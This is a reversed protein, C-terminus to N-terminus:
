EFVFTMGSGARGSSWPPYSVTSSTVICICVASRSGRKHTAFAGDAARGWIIKKSVGALGSVESLSLWEKNTEIQVVRPRVAPPPAVTVKVGLVELANRKEQFTAEAYRGQMVNLFNLFSLISSRYHGVLSGVDRSTAYEESIRKLREERARIDQSILIYYYSGEPHKTREALVMALETEAQTVLQKGRNEELMAQLSQEINREITERILDLREFVQCCDAWVYADLKAASVDTLEPCAYYKNNGKCCHYYPLRGAGNIKYQGTMRYGCVQCFVHSKLLFDEPIRHRHSKEIRNTKLKAQAREYLEVPIIAPIAGPVMKMNSNRKRTPTGKATPIVTSKCIRLIGINETDTLLKHVTSPQWVITKTKWGRARAPPLIGDETLKHAIGRLSMGQEVFLHFLSRRLGAEAKNM